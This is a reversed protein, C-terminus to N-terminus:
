FQLLKEYCLEIGLVAYENVNGSAGADQLRRHTKATLYVPISQHGLTHSYSNCNKIKETGAQKVYFIAYRIVQNLISEKSSGLVDCLKQLKNEQSDTFKLVLEDDNPDEVQQLGTKLAREIIADKM